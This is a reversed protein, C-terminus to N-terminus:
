VNRITVGGKLGAMSTVNNGETLYQWCSVQLYLMGWAELRGPRQSVSTDSAFLLSTFHSRRGWCVLYCGVLVTKTLRWATCHGPYTGLAINLIHQAGLDKFNLGFSMQIFHEEHWLAVTGLPSLTHGESDPPTGASELSKPLLGAHDTVKSMHCGQGGMFDASCKPWSYSCWFGKYNRYPHTRYM